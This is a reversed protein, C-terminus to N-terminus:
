ACFPHATCNHPIVKLFFSIQRFAFVFVFIAVFNNAVIPCAITHWKQKLCNKVFTVFHVTKLCLLLSVFYRNLSLLAPLFFFIYHGDLRCCQFFFWFFLQQVLYAELITRYLLQVGLKFHYRLCVQATKIVLLLPYCHNKPRKLLKCCTIFWERCTLNCKFHKWM